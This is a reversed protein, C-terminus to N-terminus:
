DLLLFELIAEQVHMRNEAQIWVKASPDELMDETIEEGKHAPLCHLFICDKKAYDMLKQTIKFNRFQSLKKKKNVKDNLSIVKDSFIVDANIVAKRADNSIDIKKNKIRFRETPLADFFENAIILGNLKQKDLVNTWEFIDYLDPM